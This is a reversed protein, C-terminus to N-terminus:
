CGKRHCNAPPINNLENAPYFKTNYWPSNTGLKEKMWNSIGYFVEETDTFGSIVNTRPEIHIGKQNAYEISELVKNVIQHHKAFKM